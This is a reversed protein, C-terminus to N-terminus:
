KSYGPPDPRNYNSLLVPQQDVYTTSTVAVKIKQGEGVDQGGFLPRDVFAQQLAEEFPKTKYKSGHHITTLHEFVLIGHFERPTFAKRVLETFKSICTEVSWNEVGLGLAIIGGTSYHV